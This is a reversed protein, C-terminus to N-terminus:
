PPSARRADRRERRIVENIPGQALNWDVTEHRVPELESEAWRVSELMVPAINRGDLDLTLRRSGDLWGPLEGDTRVVLQGGHRPSRALRRLVSFYAVLDWVQPGQGAKSDKIEAISIPLGRVDAALFNPDSTLHDAISATSTAGPPLTRLPPLVYEVGADRLPIRETLEGDVIAFAKAIPISQVRPTLVIVYGAVAVPGDVKTPRFVSGDSYVITTIGEDRSM